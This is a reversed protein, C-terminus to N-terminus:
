TFIVLPSITRSQESLSYKSWITESDLEHPLFLLFCNKVSLLSAVCQPCQMGHMYLLAAIVPTSSGVVYPFLSIVRYLKFDRLMVFENGLSKKAMNSNRLFFKVRSSILFSSRIAPIAPNSSKSSYTSKTALVRASSPAIIRSSLLAVM